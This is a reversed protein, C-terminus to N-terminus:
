CDEDDFSFWEYISEMVCQTIKDTIFVEDPNENHKYVRTFGSKVGQEVAMEVILHIKPKM